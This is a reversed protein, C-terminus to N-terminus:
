MNHPINVNSKNYTDCMNKEKLMHEHKVEKKIDEYEAIQSLRILKLMNIADYYCALKQAIDNNIPCHALKTAEAYLTKINENITQMM